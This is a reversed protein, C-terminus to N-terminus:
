NILQLVDNVQKYYSQSNGLSDLQLNIDKEDNKNESEPIKEYDFGIVNCEQSQSKILQVDNECRNYSKSNGASDLQMQDDILESADRVLSSVCVEELSNSEISVGNRESTEQQELNDEPNPM